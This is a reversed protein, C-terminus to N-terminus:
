FLCVEKYKNLVKNFCNPLCDLMEQQSNKQIISVSCWQTFTKDTSAVFGVVSNYQKTNEHYVDIGVIM